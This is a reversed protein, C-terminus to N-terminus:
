ASETGDAVVKRYLLYIYSSTWVITLASLILMIIPVTPIWDIASVLSKLWSDLLIIPIMILAWAILQIFVMWVLRLLIRMRRGIVLNGAARIAQMPYMGPLTVIILAFITGTLLYLSLISLLGAVIWFLMSEVGGYLLITVSAASYGILAFAIPILQILIVLSVAFTSIIPAGANYIGDRMRVKHGALINRLLWVSTLWTLLTILVAYLQQTDTLNNSMGGTIASLYLIGAQGISGWNGAFVDGGYTKLLDAVIAYTDQSAIGVLLATLVAYTIAVSIFVKRNKWLTKQVQVTFTWYGPLELSRSYDRRRTLRFSRHPRHKLYVLVRKKITKM